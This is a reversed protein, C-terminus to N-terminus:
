WQTHKIMTIKISKGIYAQKINKYENIWRKAALTKICIITM